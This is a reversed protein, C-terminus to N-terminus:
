GSFGIKKMFAELQADLGVKVSAFVELLTVGM